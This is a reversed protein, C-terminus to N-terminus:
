KKLAEELYKIKDEISEFKEKKGDPDDSTYSIKQTAPYARDYLLKAAKYKLEAAKYNLKLAKNTVPDRDYIDIGLLSEIANNAENVQHVIRMREEQYPIMLWALKAPDDLKLLLSNPHCVGKCINALVMTESAASARALEAHFQLRLKRDTVTIKQEQELEETSKELFVAPLTEIKWKLKGKSYKLIHATIESVPVLENKM